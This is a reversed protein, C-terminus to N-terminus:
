ESVQSLLCLLNLGLLEYKFASEELVSAYDSYYVQLQSMYREFSSIDECAISYNAGIELVNRALL